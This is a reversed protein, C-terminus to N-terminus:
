FGADEGSVLCVFDSNLGPTLDFRQLFRDLAELHKQVLAISRRATVFFFPPGLFVAEFM